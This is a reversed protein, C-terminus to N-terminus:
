WETGVGFVTQGSFGVAHLLFDSTESLKDNFHMFGGDTSLQRVQGTDSVDTPVALSRRGAERVRAAVEECREPIIDGIVVDAGVSACALAIARGIGGGGGTIVAVRDTLLMDPTNM